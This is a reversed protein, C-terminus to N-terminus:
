SVVMQDENLGEAKGLSILVSLHFYSATKTLM